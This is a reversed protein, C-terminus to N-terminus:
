WASEPTKAGAQNLTLEAEGSQSGTATATIVFTNAGGSVDISVDYYPAVEADSINLTTLSDTFSLQDVRYAEEANAIDLMLTQASKQRSGKIYGTYSPYAITALIGIIAVVILLEIM